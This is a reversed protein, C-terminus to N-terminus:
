WTFSSRRSGPWVALHLNEGQASLAARPLPMWNEWCNLGGVTFPGIAFLSRNLSRCNFLYVAEVLVIVNVATTRAMDLTRARWSVFLNGLFYGASLLM